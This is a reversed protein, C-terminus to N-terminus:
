IMAKIYKIIIKLEWVLFIYMYPLILFLYGPFFLRFNIFIFYTWVFLFIILNKTQKKKKLSELWYFIPSLIVAAALFPWLYNWEEAKHIPNQKDWWVPWQNLFMVRLPIFPPYEPLHSLHIKLAKIQLNIFGVIGQKVLLPIYSTLYFCFSIIAVTVFIPFVHKLKKIGKLSILHIFYCSVLIIATVPFKISAVAGLSVGLLAKTKDLNQKQSIILWIFFTIMVAQFLDLLSHSIRHVFLYEFLVALPVLLSLWRNKLLRLSILFSLWLFVIGLPIQVLNPNGFILTSIAFLYKGLPPHEINVTELSGQKLYILGAYPYLDWDRIIIKRDAPDKAFQSQHYIKDVAQFDFKETFVKAHLVLRITFIILIIFFYFTFSKNKKM